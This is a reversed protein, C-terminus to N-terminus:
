DTHIGLYECCCGAQGETGIKKNRPKYFLTERSDKPYNM